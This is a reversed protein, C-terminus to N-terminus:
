IHGSFVKLSICRKCFSEVVLALAYLSCTHRRRNLVNEPRYLSAHVSVKYRRTPNRAFFLRGAVAKRTEDLVGTQKGTRQRDIFGLQADVGVARRTRLIHEEDCTPALHDNTDIVCMFSVGAM